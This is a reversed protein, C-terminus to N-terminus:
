RWIILEKPHLATPQPSYQKYQFYILLHRLLLQRVVHRQNQVMSAGDYCIFDLTLDYWNVLINKNTFQLQFAMVLSLEVADAILWFSVVAQETETKKKKLSNNWINYKRNQM